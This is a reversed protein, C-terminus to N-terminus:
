QEAEDDEEDEDDGEYADDEIKMIKARSADADDMLASGRNRKLTSERILELKNKREAAVALEDAEKNLREIAKM